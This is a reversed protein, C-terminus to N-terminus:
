DTSYAEPEVPVCTPFLPTGGEEKIIVECDKPLTVNGEDNLFDIFFCASSCHYVGCVQFPDCGNEDVILDPDSDLCQDCADGIGDEDEDKQNPNPLLPCNDEDDCIGDKDTDQCYQNIIALIKHASINTLLITGDSDADDGFEFFDGLGVPPIANDDYRPDEWISPVPVNLQEQNYFYSGLELQVIEICVSDSISDNLFLDKNFILPTTFNIIGVETTISFNSLPVDSGDVTQNSQNLLIKCIEIRGDFQCAASCGDGSVTNGDDCQEYTGEANPSQVEGDGCVELLCIESCGDGNATNGDDCQEGTQVINDGCVENQCAASCGDGSVTNGDDCQEYTGEANPSQVEGDGCVAQSECVSDCGHETCSTENSDYTDCSNPSGGCNAALTCRISLNDLYAEEETDSFGDKEIRIRMTNVLFQDAINITRISAPADDCFIDEDDDWTIGGDDSFWVVMCDSGELTGNEAVKGVRFVATGGQCSSLDIDTQKYLFYDSSNGDGNLCRGSACSSNSVNAIGFGDNTWNAWDNTQALTDFNNSWITQNALAAIWGCGAATCTANSTFTTCAFPTGSCGEFEEGASCVQPPEIFGSDPATDTNPQQDIPNAEDQDTAALLEFQGCGSYGLASLNLYFDVSNNPSGQVRYGFSNNILGPLETVFNSSSKNYQQAGPVNKDMNDDFDDDNDSDNVFYLEYQGDVPDVRDEIFILFDGRSEGDSPLGNIFYKYRVVETCVNEGMSCPDGPLAPEGAMTERLFLYTGDCFSSVNTIDRWDDNTGNNLADTGFLTFQADTPWSAPAAFASFSLVVFVIVSIFAAISTGKVRVGLM